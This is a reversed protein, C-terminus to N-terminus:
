DDERSTATPPPSALKQLKAQIASLAKELQSVQEALATLEETGEADNREPRLDTQGAFGIGGEQRRGGARRGRRGAGLGVGFGAGRCRGRGGGTVPGQGMPGTGDRGPM